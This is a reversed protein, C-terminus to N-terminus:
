DLIRDCGRRVPDRSENHIRVSRRRSSGLAILGRGQASALARDCCYRRGRLTAASWPSGSRRRIRFAFRRACGAFGRGAAEMRIHPDNNCFFNARKRRFRNALPLGSKRASTQSVSFSAMGCGDFGQGLDAADWKLSEAPGDPRLRFGCILGATDPLEVMFLLSSPSPRRIDATECFAGAGRDLFM